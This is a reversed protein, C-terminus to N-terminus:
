KGVVVPAGLVWTDEDEPTDVSGDFLLESVLAGAEEGLEDVFAAGELTVLTKVEDVFRPFLTDNEEFNVMTEVPEVAFNLEDTAEEPVAAFDLREEDLTKDDVM